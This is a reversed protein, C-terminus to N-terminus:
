APDAPPTRVPDLLAALMNAVYSRLRTESERARSKVRTSYIVGFLCAALDASNVDARIEGAAKARDLREAIWQESWTVYHKLIEAIEPREPAIELQANVVFCGKQGATAVSDEVLGEFLKEIQGLPSAVQEAELYFHASARAYHHVCETFLGDKNGFGAYLSGPLVGTAKVLDNVSVGRYGREWFLAMAKELTEERDQKVPRAM